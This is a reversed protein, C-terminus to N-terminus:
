RRASLEARRNKSWVADSNGAELPREEGYSVTTIRAKPVGMGNLYRSVADARRQGLSLNYETTGREDCHGEIRIPLDANKVCAAWTDLSGRSEAPVTASDLAFFVTLPGCPDPNTIPVLDRITLGNKLVTKKGDPNTVSVDYTGSPLAPVTVSLMTDSIYTAPGLNESGHSSNSLQVSAGRAFGSGFLEASFAKNTTGTAPDIGALQLTVTPPIVDINDDVVPNKDRDGNCGTLAVTLMLTTALIRKM